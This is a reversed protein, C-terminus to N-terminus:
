QLRGGEGQPAWGPLLSEVKVYTAANAEHDECLPYVLPGFINDQSLKGLTLYLVHRATLRGCLVCADFVGLCRQVLELIGQGTADM